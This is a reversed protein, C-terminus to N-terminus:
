RRDLRDYRDYYAPHADEESEMYLFRQRLRKGKREKACCCLYLNCIFMLLMVGGAGLLCYRSVDKYEDFLDQLRDYCYYVPKGSNVDGFRYILNSVTISEDPCWLSCDLLEELNGMVRFLSAEADTINGRICEETNKFGTATNRNYLAIEDRDAQDPYHSFFDPSTNDLACACDTQCFM